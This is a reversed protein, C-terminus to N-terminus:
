RRVTLQAKLYAYIYAEFGIDRTRDATIAASGFWQLIIAMLLFNAM